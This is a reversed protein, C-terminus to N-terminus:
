QRPGKRPESPKTTHTDRRGANVGRPKSHAGQPARITPHRANAEGANARRAKHNRGKRPESPKHTGGNAEGANARRAKHNRGKRPESPKAGARKEGGANARRAKHHPGRAPSPHNPRVRTEGRREADIGGAESSCDDCDSRIRDWLRNKRIPIKQTLPRRIRNYLTVTSIRSVADHPAPTRAALTAHNAMPKCTRGKDHCGTESDM